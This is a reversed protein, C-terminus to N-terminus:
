KEGSRKDQVKDMFAATIVTVGEKKAEAVV